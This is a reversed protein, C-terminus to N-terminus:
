FETKKARIQTFQDQLSKFRLWLEDTEKNSLRNPIKNIDEPYADELLMRNLCILESEKLAPKQEKLKETKNRLKIHKFVREDHLDEVRLIENLIIFLEIEIQKELEEYEKSGKFLQKLKNMLGELDKYKNEKHKKKLLEHIHSSISNRRHSIMEAFRIKENIDNGCFLYSTCALRFSNEIEEDYVVKLGGGTEPRRLIYDAVMQTPEVFTQHYTERGMLMEVVHREDRERVIIDRWVRGKARDLPSADIYIRIDGLECLYPALCYLGEVIIIRAKTLKKKEKRTMFRQLSSQHSVRDHVPLIPEEGERLAKINQYARLLDSNLVNDYKGDSARPGVVEIPYFYNDLELRAIDDEEINSKEGLHRVLDLSFTTKGAAGGGGILVIIRKSTQKVQSYESSVEGSIEIQYDEQEINSVSACFEQPFKGKLARNLAIKELEELWKDGYRRTEKGMIDKQSRAKRASFWKRVLDMMQDREDKKKHKKEKDKDSM